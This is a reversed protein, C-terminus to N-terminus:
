QELFRKAAELEAAQKSHGEGRAVVENEICLGVSFFRDHAPGHEDLVKYTPTVKYKEQIIEQAMSKPDKGGTEGVESIHAIINKKIFALAAEYGQDLYLAGIFAEVADALIAEGRRSMIERAEGKSMLVYEHMGLDKAVSCLMKTNVLAARYTTLEGEEKDPLAHFLHDTVIIELVADGLFELRENHPVAWHSDENLYSRHTLAEKLINKDTFVVGIKEEIEAIRNDM